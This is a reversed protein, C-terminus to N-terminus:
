NLLANFGEGFIECINNVTIFANKDVEYIRKRLKAFDRRSVVVVLVNKEENSFGGKANYITTGKALDKLIYEKIEDYKDSIITVEKCMNIGDIIADIVFGNMIVGVMAFLALKTEFAFGAMITVSLDCMLVGKGLDVHFFKNLIKALIDTGGTSANHNFVVGMGAGSILIGVIMELFVEDTFPHAMPLFRELLSIIGSIGLSVYITKAGFGNGVIIFALIFLVVNIIIMLTGVSLMPFFKNIVIGLGNAGGIALKNPMFFFYMGGAVMFMGITMIIFDKVKDKLQLENNVKEM